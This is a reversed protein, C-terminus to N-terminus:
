IEWEVRLKVGCVDEWTEVNSFWVFACFNLYSLCLLEVDMAIVLWDAINSQLMLCLCIYM